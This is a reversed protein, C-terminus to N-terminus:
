GASSFRPTASQPDADGLVPVPVGRVWIDRRRDVRRDLDQAAETRGDIRYFQRAQAIVGIALRRNGADLQIRDVLVIQAGARLIEAADQAVAHQRARQDAGLVVHRGQAPPRFQRALLGLNEPADVRDHRSPREVDGVAGVWFWGSRSTVAGLTVIGNLTAPTGASVIGHPNLRSSPKGSDKCIAAAGNASPSIRRM